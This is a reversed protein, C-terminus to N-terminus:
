QRETAEVTLRVGSGQVLSLTHLVIRFICLKIKIDCVPAVELNCM